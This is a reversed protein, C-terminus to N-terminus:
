GGEMLPILSVKDGKRLIWYNTEDPHLLQRNVGILFSAYSLGLENMIEGVTPDGKVEIEKM